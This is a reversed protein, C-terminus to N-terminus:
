CQVSLKQENILQVRHPIFMYRFSHNQDDMGECSKAHNMARHKVQEEGHRQYKPV